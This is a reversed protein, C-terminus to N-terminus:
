QNLLSLFMNNHSFIPKFICKGFISVRQSRASPFYVNTCLAKTFSHFCSSVEARWGSASTHHTGPASNLGTTCVSKEADGWHCQLGSHLRQAALFYSSSSPKRDTTDRRQPRRVWCSGFGSATLNQFCESHPSTSVGDQVPRWTRKDERATHTRTHM